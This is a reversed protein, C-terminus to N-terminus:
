QGEGAGVGAPVEDGAGPRADAAPEAAPEAGDAAPGGNGSPAAAAAVVPSLSSVPDTPRRRRGPVLALLGGLGIVLGGTWMWVILPEVVVTVAIANHPLNAVVQGGTVRGTGGIADFTLYVDDFFGSDIAPTGVAQSKPGGYQSVAPYFLGGGDVRVVAETAIRQPTDVTRFGLFEFTHGDYHVVKAEPLAIEATARYSTAAVLGIALVVVGLHVVMGGNARGVLGRWAGAGHRQSTRVSLVLSRFASAAAFAGLGFALLPEFGRVGGIVCGVVVLVGFWAPLALRHWLVAGDVKRWSLAPAVAMLLLLALGVPAAVTNFYPAGVTVEQGKIAQYLLPFLTGLLVVFAFGVFLLNNLLFAGERGVPSDIGGPSRLRDGRWAILGFGVVVVAVFFAILAPGLTSESFSHVSQVVGSRTLFTGLITLAFTAVSLSMNWVRLLGRREQVLVSHLYATGCLWPLLAANEVPDWGWFGGWGLVQYSWWAGLVIGVSLFTWALLTWRRTEAQWQEGVRGTVLMGVAFAFPIAFGVFGLYLLPPHIAVLPNDQLLARPGAGQTPAAGPVTTFPNAPGTMLGFFFAAVVYMVLTAWRIVPDAAQRRYRWVLLTTFVALALGWLLISGALASWMGTISYILPTARANNTAVYVLSFDHTILAREMAVTALVAGALLVPAFLRGDTAPGGVAAATTGRHRYLSLATVVVGVVSGGLAIWVGIQGLAANLM